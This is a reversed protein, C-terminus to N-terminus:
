SFEKSYYGALVSENHKVCASFTHFSQSVELLAMENSLANKQSQHTTLRLPLRLRLRLGGQRPELSQTTTSVECADIMCGDQDQLAKCIIRWNPGSPPGSWRLDWSHGGSLMVQGPISRVNSKKSKEAEHTPSSGESDSGAMESISESDLPKPQHVQITQCLYIYKSIKEM